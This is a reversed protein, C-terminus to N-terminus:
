CWSAWALPAINSRQHHSKKGKWAWNTGKAHGSKLIELKDWNKEKQRKIKKGKAHCSKLIEPPARNKEGHRKNRGVSRERVPLLASAVSSVRSRLRRCCYLCPKLAGRSHTRCSVFIGPANEDLCPVLCSFRSWYTFVRGVGLVVQIVPVSSTCEPLSLQCLMAAETDFSWKIPDDLGGSISSTYGACSYLPSWNCMWMGGTFVNAPRACVIIDADRPAAAGAAGTFSIFDVQVYLVPIRAYVHHSQVVVYVVSETFYIM